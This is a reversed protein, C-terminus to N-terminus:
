TIRHLTYVIIITYELQYNTSLNLLNMNIVSTNFYSAFQSGNSMTIYGIQHSLLKNMEVIVVSTPGM